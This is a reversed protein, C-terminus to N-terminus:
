EHSNGYNMVYEKAKKKSVWKGDWDLFIQKANVKDIIQCIIKKQELSDKQQAAGWSMGLKAYENLLKMCNGEKEFDWSKLTGWKLTLRENYKKSM